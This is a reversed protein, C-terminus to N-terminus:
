PVMRKSISFNQKKLLAAKAIKGTISKLGSTIWQWSQCAPSTGTNRFLKNLLLENKLFMFTMIVICLRLNWPIQSTLVILPM